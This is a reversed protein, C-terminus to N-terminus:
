RLNNNFWNLVVNKGENVVFVCVSKSGQQEQGAEGPLSASHVSLALEEPREPWTSDPQKEESSPCRGPFICSTWCQHGSARDPEAAPRFIFRFMKTPKLLVLLNMSCNPWKWCSEYLLDCLPRLNFTLKTQTDSPFLKVRNFRWCRNWM